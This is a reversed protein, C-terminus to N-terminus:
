QFKMELFPVETDAYNAKNLQLETLYIQGIMQELYHNDINLSVDLYRATSNFAEIIDTQNNDLWFVKLTYILQTDVKIRFLFFHQPFFFIFNTLSLQTFVYSTHM